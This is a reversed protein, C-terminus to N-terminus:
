KIPFPICNRCTVGTTNSKNFSRHHRMFSPILAINHGRCAFCIRLVVIGYHNVLDHHHANFKQLTLNYTLVLFWQNLINWSLLLGRILFIFQTLCWLLVILEWIFNLLQQCSFFGSTKCFLFMNDVVFNIVWTCNYYRKILSSRNKNTIVYNHSWLKFSANTM